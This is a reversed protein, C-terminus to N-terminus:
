QRTTSGFGGNRIKDADDDVTIGYELFIGQMFGMGDSIELIKGERSDNTVKAMIHGENDSYF